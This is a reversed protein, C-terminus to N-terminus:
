MNDNQKKKKKSKKPYWSIKIREWSSKNSTKEYVVSRVINKKGIIGSHLRKLTM